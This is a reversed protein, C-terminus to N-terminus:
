DLGAAQIPIQNIKHIQQKLHKAHLTEAVYSTTALALIRLSYVTNNTTPKEDYGVKRLGLNHLQLVFRKINRELKLFNYTDM